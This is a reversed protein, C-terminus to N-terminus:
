LYVNCFKQNLLALEGELYYFGTGAVRASSEFDGIDLDEILEVHSKVDFGFKGPKGVKRGVVNDKESKGLPVNKSMMNPIEIQLNWIEKALIKDKDELDQIKKQVDANKKIFDKKKSDDKNKGAEKIGERIKNRESRLKDAEYKLKRWEDDKKKLEDVYKLKSDQNKNKVNNKVAEVDERILKIDIM